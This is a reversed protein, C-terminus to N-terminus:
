WRYGLVFQNFYKLQKSFVAQGTGLEAPLSFTEVGLYLYGMSPVQLRVGGGYAPLILGDTAFGQGNAKATVLRNGFGFGYLSLPRLSEGVYPLSGLNLESTLGLNIGGYTDEIGGEYYAWQQQYGVLGRITLGAEIIPAPFRAAAQLVQMSGGGAFRGMSPIYDVQVAGHHAVTQINFTGDPGAQGYIGELPVAEARPQSLGCILCGLTLSLVVSRRIKM